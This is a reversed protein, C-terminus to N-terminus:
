PLEIEKSVGDNIFIERKVIIEGDRYVEILHKGPKISYQYNKGSVVNFKRGSDISIEVNKTNGSFYVYSKQTTTVVGEKYGCGSLLLLTLLGITMIIQKM